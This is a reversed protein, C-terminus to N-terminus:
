EGNAKKAAERVKAGEKAVVEAALQKASPAAIRQVAPRQGKGRQPTPTRYLVPHKRGQHDTWTPLPEAPVLGPWLRSVVSERTNQGAGPTPLAYGAPIDVDAGAELEVPGTDLELYLLRGSENRFRYLSKVITTDM